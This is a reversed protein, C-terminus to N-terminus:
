ILIIATRIITILGLVVSVTGIVMNAKEKKINKLLLAGLPPAIISSIGMIIIMQFFLLLDSFGNLIFYMLFGFGSLFAESFNSVAIAQKHGRGTVIQGTTAIPGYGGGSFAKNFAAFGSILYLKNWSFQLKIKKFMIIGVIVVMIGIYLMMIFDPLNVAIWVAIFMGLMGSLTFIATVKLNVKKEMDIKVNKYLTHFVTGTFGAIMQALLLVPVVLLPDFGLIILFPALMGYGMGFSSDVFAGVFGMLGVILLIQLTLEM